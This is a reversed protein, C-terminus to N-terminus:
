PSSKKNTCIRCDCSFRCVFCIWQKWKLVDFGTTAYRAHLCEFCYAHEDSEETCRAVPTKQKRCGHCKGPPGRDWFLNMVLEVKSFSKARRTAITKDLDADIAWETTQENGSDTSVRRKKNKAAKKKPAVYTHYVKIAKEAVQRWDRQEAYSYLKMSHYEDCLRGEIFCDLCVDFGDEPQIEFHCAKMARPNKSIKHDTRSCHMALDFIDCHCRNCFVTFRKISPDYQAIDVQKGPEFGLLTENFVVDLFCSLVRKYEEKQAPNKLEEPHDIWHKVLSSINAKIRYCELRNMRHYVKLSYKYATELTEPTTRSWAIKVNVGNLNKVQHIVNPPLVIFDGVRQKFRYVILDGAQKELVDDELYANESDLSAGNAAFLKRALDADEAKIFHWIACANKGKSSTMLNHGYTSCIDQHANTRTGHAGIYAMFNDARLDDDMLRMADTNGLYHYEEPVIDAISQHWEEPCVIDKAYGVGNRLFDTAFSTITDGVREVVTGTERVPVPWNPYKRLLWELTMNHKPKLKLSIVRPLSADQSSVDLDVVPM